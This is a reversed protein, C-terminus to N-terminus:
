IYFFLLLLSMESIIINTLPKNYGDPPVGIRTIELDYGV